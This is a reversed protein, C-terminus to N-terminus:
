RELTAIVRRNIERKEASSNDNLPKIEGYGIAKLRTAEISGFSLIYDRVSNARNQSLIRNNKENGVNDTHGEITAKYNPHKQMFEIFLKLKNAFGEKINYKGTDFLVDLNVTKSCGQTDVQFGIPTTPCKDYKDFVGDKDSDKPKEIKAVKEIILCGNEDIKDCPRSNPCKDYLDAVGDGDTDKSVIIGREKNKYLDSSSKEGTISSVMSANLTFCISGIIIVYGIKM